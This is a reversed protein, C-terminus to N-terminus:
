NINLQDKLAQQLVASFNIENKEAETNLWEPITLTKKVAKKQFRKRYMLTDAMILTAFEGVGVSLVSITSAPPPAVKKDEYDYLMLELVDKANEMAEELTEGDTFCNEIDPFVVSYGNDDKSFIAPYIYKSNQM